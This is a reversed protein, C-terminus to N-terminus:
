EDGYHFKKIHRKLNDLRSGNFQIQCHPCHLSEKRHVSAQHRALDRRTSIKQYDLRLKQVPSGSSMIADTIGVNATTLM